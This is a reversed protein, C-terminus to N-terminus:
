RGAAAIIQKAQTMSGDVADSVCHVNAPDYLEKDAPYLTDLQACSQKATETIRAQLVAVGSQTTLDLDGYGVLRTLTVRESQYGHFSQGSQHTVRHPAIVVVESSPQAVAQGNAIVLGGVLAAASALVLYRTRTAFFERKM